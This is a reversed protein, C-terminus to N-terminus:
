VGVLGAALGHYRETNRASARVAAVPEEIGDYEISYWGEYGSAILIRFCTVFDVVGHGVITGRLYDGSRTNHWGEGPHAAAASKKLYDKVHVHVIRNAFRGVFDEPKEGVFMINGLDAVVAVDREVADLLREFRDGGNFTFGQDEHITRVGVTQAYDYVERIGSVASALLERFPAAADKRYDLSPLLTHHLYPAGMAAALDAYRKLKEINAKREPGVTINMCLSFCPIAIGNQKAYVALREAAAIAEPGASAFEAVPYPEIAGFGTEKAFDVAEHFTMSDKPLSFISLKM